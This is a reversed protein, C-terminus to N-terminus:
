VLHELDNCSSTISKERSKPLINQHPDTFKFIPLSKQMRGRTETCIDVQIGRIGQECLITLEHIRAGICIKHSLFVHAFSRFNTKTDITTRHTEVATIISSLAFM